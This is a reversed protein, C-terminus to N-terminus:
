QVNSIVETQHFNALPQKRAALLARLYKQIRILGNLDIRNRFSEPKEATQLWTTIAGPTVSDPHLVDLFGANSMREARILQETRPTVRPIILAKKNFSLIECITNYGGMSVVREAHKLLPQPDNIFDILRMDPRKSILRQLRSRHKEPMFPGTVILGVFGEPLKAKAFAETIHAGDQGGGVMCLALRGKPLGYTIFPDDDKASDNSTECRNLYGTFRVKKKIEDSFGYERVMNYIAPHGYIWVEDYYAKIVEDYNSRYWERQVQQKDDLIDRLGLVCRTNHYMRLEKLIPELEGSVGLPTKDVIMVDPDFAKVAARITQGRFQVLEELSLDLCRSQYQGNTGKYFAPLTLCDVGQPLKFSSVQKAGAILLVDAQIPEATLARAISINRRMHGLGMTDHSYLVIRRKRVAPKVFPLIQIVM